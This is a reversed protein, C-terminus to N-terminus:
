IKKQAPLTKLKLRKQKRLWKGLSALTKSIATDVIEHVQEVTVDKKAKNETKDNKFLTVLAIVIAIIAFGWYISTQLHATDSQLVRIETKIETNNKQMEAKLENKLEQIGANFMEVTIFNENSPM